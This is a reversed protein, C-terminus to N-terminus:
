RLYRVCEKDAKFLDSALSVADRNQAMDTDEKQLWLENRAIVCFLLAKKGFINRLSNCGQGSDSAYQLLSGGKEVM